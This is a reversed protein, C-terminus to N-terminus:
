WLFLFIVAFILALYKTSKNFASDLFSESYIISFISNLLNHFLFELYSFAICILGMAFLLYHNIGFLVIKFAVSLTCVIPLACKRLFYPFFYKNLKYREGNRDSYPVNTIPKKCIPCECHADVTMKCNPCIKV